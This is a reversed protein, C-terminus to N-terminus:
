KQTPNHNPSAATRRTVLLHDHDDKDPYGFGFALPRQPRDTWLRVFEEEHKRAVKLFSGTFRGWTEQEFGAPGAYSPPIGTSDSIMWEANALLYGRIRSFAPSWLLYSAAKTMATVRGKAELHAMVGPTTALSKDALNAQLHRYVRAPGADGRKRFTLELHAFRGKKRAQLQARSQYQLQGGDEIVFYRLAVPEHDFAALAMLAFVLQDPLVEKRFEQLNTTKSHTAFSLRRVDDRFTALASEQEEASAVAFGQPDGAPELSLTTIVGARPFTALATFLDGGGFPYVVETPLDQPVLQELFPVAKTTWRRRWDALLARLRVCHREVAASSVAPPVPVDGTAAGCAAVRFLLRADAVFDHAPESPPAPATATLALFALAFTPM